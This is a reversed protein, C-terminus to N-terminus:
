ASLSAYLSATALVSTRNSTNKAGPFGHCFVSKLLGSRPCLDVKEVTYTIGESKLPPMVLQILEPSNSNRM